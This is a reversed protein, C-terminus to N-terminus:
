FLRDIQIDFSWDRMWNLVDRELGFSPVSLFGVIPFSPCNCAKRKAKVNKRLMGGPKELKRGAGHQELSRQQQPPSFLLLFLLSHWCTEYAEHQRQNERPKKIGKVICISLYQSQQGIPTSTSNRWSVRLAKMSSTDTSGRRPVKRSTWHNLSRKGICPICTWDRNPFSLDWMGQPQFIM